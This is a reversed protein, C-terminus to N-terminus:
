VFKEYFYLIISYRFLDIRYHIRAGEFDFLHLLSVWDQFNLGLSRLGKDLRTEVNFVVVLFICNLLFDSLNM